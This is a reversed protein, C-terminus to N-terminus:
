HRRLRQKNGGPQGDSEKPAEERGRYRLKHREGLDHKLRLVLEAGGKSRREYGGTVRRRGFGEGGAVWVTYVPSLERDIIM